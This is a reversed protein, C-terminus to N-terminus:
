RQFNPISKFGHQFKFNKRLIEETIVSSNKSSLRLGDNVNSLHERVIFLTDLCLKELDISRFGENLDNFFHKLIFRIHDGIPVNKDRSPFTLSWTEVFQTLIENVLQEVPDVNASKPQLNISVIFNIRKIRAM